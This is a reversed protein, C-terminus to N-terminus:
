QITDKQLSQEVVTNNRGSTEELLPIDLVFYRYAMIGTMLVIVVLGIYSIKWGWINGLYESDFPDRNDSQHTM